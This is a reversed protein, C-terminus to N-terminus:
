GEYCLCGFVHARVCMCGLWGGMRRCCGGMWGGGM